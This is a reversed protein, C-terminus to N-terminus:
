RSEGRIITAARTVEDDTPPRLGLGDDTVILLMGPYTKIDLLKAPHAKLEAINARQEVVSIRLQGSNYLARGALIELNALEKIQEDSKAPEGIPISDAAVASIATSALLLLVLPVTRM